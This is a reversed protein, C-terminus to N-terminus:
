IWLSNDGTHRHYLVLMQNLDATITHGGYRAVEFLNDTNIQPYRRKLIWCNANEDQQKFCLLSLM